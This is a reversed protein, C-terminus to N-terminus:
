LDTATKTEVDGEEVIEFAYDLMVPFATMFKDRQARTWRGDAPLNALLGALASPLGSPSQLHHSHRLANSPPPTHGSSGGTAQRTVVVKAKVGTSGSASRKPAASTSSM